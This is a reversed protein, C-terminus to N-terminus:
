KKITLFILVYSNLFYLMNIIILRFNILNKIEKSYNSYCLCSLLETNKGFIYLSVCLYKSLGDGLNILYFSLTLLLQMTDYFLILLLVNEFYLLFVSLAMCRACHELKNSSYLPSYYELYALLSLKACVVDWNGCGLLRPVSLNQM